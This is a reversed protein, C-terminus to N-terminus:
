AEDGGFDDDQDDDWGEEDEYGESEDTSDEEQQDELIEEVLGRVSQESWNWKVQRKLEGEVEREAEKTDGESWRFTSIRFQRRGCDLLNHLVMGRRETEENRAIEDRYPQLLSKVRAEIFARAEWLNLGRPFQNATVYSELDRVVYARWEVPIETTCARGHAKLAELRMDTEMRDQEARVVRAADEAARIMISPDQDRRVETVQGRDLRPGSANSQAEYGPTESGTCAVPRNRTGALIVSHGDSTSRMRSGHAQRLFSEIDGLRFRRQGGPLRHAPLKGQREWARVTDVSVGAMAAVKGISILHRDFSRQSM